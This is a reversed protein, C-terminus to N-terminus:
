YERQLSVRQIEEITVRDRSRDYLKTTSLQAHGAISRATDLEGGAIMFETLGTGRFSHCGVRKELGVARARSQVLKWVNIRTMPRHEFLEKSRCFAPFLPCAPREAIEAAQLWDDIANRAETHVPVEHIKGRKEHLRLWRDGKRLYYDEVKLAIVASVRAWTYFMTSFLAKDRIDILSNCKIGALFDRMEETEFIPTHSAVRHLSPVKARAAPNLDVVGKELLRDFLRRIAALHQRKTAVSGPHSNRWHEFHRPRVRDLSLKSKSCFAFFDRWAIKYAQRTNPNDIEGLLDVLSEATKQRKSAASNPLELEFPLVIPILVSKQGSRKPRM